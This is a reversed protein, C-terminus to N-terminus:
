PEDTQEKQWFGRGKNMMDITNELPTGTSLHAPNVCHRVDCSHLIQLEKPISGNHKEYMLRHAYLKKGDQNFTGYGKSNKGGIWLWCRSESIVYREHFPTFRRIYKGTSKTM